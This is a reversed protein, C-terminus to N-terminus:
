RGSSENEELADLASQIRDLSDDQPALKKKNKNRYVVVDIVVTAALSLMALLPVGLWAPLSIAFAVVGGFVILVVLMIALQRTNKFDSLKM